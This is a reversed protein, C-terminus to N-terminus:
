TMTARTRSARATGSSAAGASPLHGVAAIGSVARLVPAAGTHYHFRRGDQRSASKPGVDSLREFEEFRREGFGNSRLGQSSAQQCGRQRCVSPGRESNMVARCRDNLM